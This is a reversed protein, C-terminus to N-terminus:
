RLTLQGAEFATRCDTADAMVDDYILMTSTMGPGEFRMDDCEGDNAWQSSDTGFDISGDAGVGRRTIAGAEYLTRCDTADAKMDDFVLVAAMGQGVFRPDDCEGDNTWQGSDAGFDVAMAGGGGGQANGGQANGGGQSNGGDSSGGLMAGLGSLLGGGGGGGAAAGGGSAAGAAGSAGALAIAGAEYAARCDTADAMRNDALLPPAAMGAGEFRLDDCEGDGAFFGSDDGFDISGDAGVGMFGLRGSEVGARCDSADKRIDDFLVIGAMGQGDFRPDDCEGDGSWMGSDDGFDITLGQAAAPTSLGAIALAAFTTQLIARM